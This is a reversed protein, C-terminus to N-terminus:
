AGKKEFEVIQPEWSKSKWLNKQKAEKDWVRIRSNTIGKVRAEMPKRTM